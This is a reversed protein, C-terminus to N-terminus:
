SGDAEVAIDRRLMQRAALGPADVNIDILPASPDRDLMKQQAELIVTDEDFTQSVMKFLDASVQEDGLAFDRAHGFFYFTSKDTEPTPANLSRIHMGVSPEGQAPDCTGSDCAGAKIQTHCPSITEVIQWRDVTGTFRGLKQFMPPAPRDIIWRTMRVMNQERETKIPFETIDTTGLTQLHVYSLHSLDLLNDTILEYNCDLRLYKGKVVDWEPHDFWWWNPILAEDALAPDGMWIWIYKWREVTPYARVAAGPPIHTQGPVKVCVGGKDFELGHYGCQLRDGIVKGMSLPLARHCCRDELAVATGDGTRYLVVPECLLTRALPAATVEHDWAAVYWCNKLFTESM